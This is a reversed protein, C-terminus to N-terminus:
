QTEIISLIQRLARQKKEQPLKSFSIGITNLMQSETLDEYKVLEKAEQDDEGLLYPITVGFRQSFEILRAYPVKDQRQWNEYTSRNIGWISCLHTISRADSVLKMREIIPKIKPEKEM